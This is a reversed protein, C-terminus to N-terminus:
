LEKIVHSSICQIVEIDPVGTLRKVDHRGISCSGSVAVQGSRLCAGLKKQVNSILSEAVSARDSTVTVYPISISYKAGAISEQLEFWICNEIDIM